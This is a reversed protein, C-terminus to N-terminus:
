ATVKKTLPSTTSIEHLAAHFLYVIREMVVPDDLDRQFPNGYVMQVKANACLTRFSREIAENVKDQDFENLQELHWVVRFHFYEQDKLKRKDFYSKFTLMKMLYPNNHLMKM